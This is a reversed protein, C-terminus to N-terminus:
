KRLTEFNEKFWAVSEDVATEFPTFKFEPLYKRLKQNSATKKYQGDARSTDFEVTGKFDMAKVIADAVQKISM